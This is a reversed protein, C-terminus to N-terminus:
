AGGRSVNWPPGAAARLAVILDCLWLVQTVELGCAAVKLMQLPDSKDVLIEDGCACRITEIKV